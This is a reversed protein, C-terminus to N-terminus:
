YTLQNALVQDSMTAASPRAIWINCAYKRGKLVPLGTHLSSVLPSGDSRRNPFLLVRGAVPEIRRDIIPFYTEGGRYGDNLYLLATWWRHDSAADAEFSVDLHPKYEQGMQYSVCQLAEIDAVEIGPVLAGLKARIGPAIRLHDAKGFMASYSTRQRSISADVGSNVRSMEWNKEAVDLIDRCEQSSFLGDIVRTQSVMYNCDASEQECKARLEEEDRPRREPVLVAGTCRRRIEADDFSLWGTNGDFARIGSGSDILVVFSFDDEDHIQALLPLDAGTLEAPDIRRGHVQYPVSEILEMLDLLNIKRQDYQGRKAISVLESSTIPYGAAALLKEILVYPLFYRGRGFFEPYGNQRM